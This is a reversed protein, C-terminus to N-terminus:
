VTGTLSSTRTSSVRSRILLLFILLHTVLMPAVIATPIFFAAGLEGPQLGIRPGLYFVSLFDGAGWINFLWVIPIAWSVRKSLAVFALIALIGAVFDGWAAPNAFAVPLSASVVGPVLFSLGIFRIFMHPAVLLALARDRDLARLRPWVYFRALVASSASSMLISIGFIALDM